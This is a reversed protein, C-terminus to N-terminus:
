RYPGEHGAPEHLRIVEGDIPLTEPNDVYWETFGCSACVFARFVGENEWEGLGLGDEKVHSLISLVGGGEGPAKDKVRSIELIRRESCKPCQLTKKM